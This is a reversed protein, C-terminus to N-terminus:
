NRFHGSEISVCEPGRVVLLLRPLLQPLTFTDLEETSEPITDGDDGDCHPIPGDEPCASDSTHLPDLIALRLLLAKSCEPIEM